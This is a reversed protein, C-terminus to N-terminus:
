RWWVEDLAIQTLDTTTVGVSMKKAGTHTAVKVLWRDPTLLSVIADKGHATEWVLLRGVTTSTCGGRTQDPHCLTAVFRDAQPEALKEIVVVVESAAAENHVESQLVVYGTRASVGAQLLGVPYGSARLTSAFWGPADGNLVHVARGKSPLASALTQAMQDGAVGMQRTPVATSSVGPPSQGVWATTGYTVGSGFVAAAVVLGVTWRRRRVRSRRLGDQISAGVVGQPVQDVEEATVHLLSSLEQEIM